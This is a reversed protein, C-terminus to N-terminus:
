GSKLLALRHTLWLAECIVKTPPSVKHSYWHGDAEVWLSSRQHLTLISLWLVMWICTPRSQWSLWATIGGHQWVCVFLLLKQNYFYCNSDGAKGQITPNNSCGENNYRAMCITSDVIRRGGIFFPFCAILYITFWTNTHGISDHWSM